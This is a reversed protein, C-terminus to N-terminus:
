NGSNRKIIKKLYNLSYGREVASEWKEWSGSLCVFQEGDRIEQGSCYGLQRSLDYWHRFVAGKDVERDSEEGVTLNQSEWDGKLAAVFYGSLNPIHQDRKREKLIAIASEVKEAPYLKLLDRITKNVSVGAGDLLAILEKNVIYDVKIKNKEVDLNLQKSGSKQKKQGSSANLGASHLNSGTQNKEGEKAEKSTAAAFSEIKDSLRDSELKATGKQNTNKSEKYSTSSKEVELTQNEDDQATTACMESIEISEAEAWERLREYNLSYYNTQDWQKSKYRIVEVIELDRLVKMAQRFKWTTFFTFQQNVWDPFSNYIFKVNNIVVGVGKKEMWYHLQQLVLAAEFSGLANGINMDLIRIATPSTALISM